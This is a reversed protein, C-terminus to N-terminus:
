RRTSSPASPPTQEYIIKAVLWAGQRVGGMLMARESDSLRDTKLFPEVAREYNVVAFARPFAPRLHRPLSLARRVIHM